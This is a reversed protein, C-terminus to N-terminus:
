MAEAPKFDIVVQAAASPVATGNFRIFNGEAYYSWGNVYDQALKVGDIFVTITDVVPKRKLAFDTMVEIIRARINQVAQALSTKCISENRGGSAEVLSMYRLGAEKFDATTSCDSDISVVGIFNAIWSTQGNSSPKLANLFNVYSASSGTSYDDENTLFILVLLADERFFDKHAGSLNSASLVNQMSELGRELDSGSQGVKVRNTLVNVLDSSGSTLFNPTGVLDGGTGGSRMDSTTIGIHYNLKLANLKELMAPVQASFKNQYQLMSSSNDMMFLIDVKNNYTVIEGFAQQEQPLDFNQASCAMLASTLLLTGACRATRKLTLMATSPLTQEPM